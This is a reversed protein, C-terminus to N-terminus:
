DAGHSVRLNKERHEHDPQGSVTKIRLSSALAWGRRVDEDQDCVVKPPAVQGQVVAHRAGRLQVPQGAVAHLLEVEPSALLTQTTKLEHGKGRVAAAVAVPTGDETDVLTVILGLHDRITKGDVALTWPLQGAHALLWQTLMRALADLEIKIRWRM